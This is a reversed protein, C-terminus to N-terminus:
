HCSTLVVDMPDKNHQKEAEDGSGKSSLKPYVQSAFDENKAALLEVLEFIYTPRSIEKTKSMVIWKSAGSMLKKWTDDSADFVWSGGQLLFLILRSSLKLM